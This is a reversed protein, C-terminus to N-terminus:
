SICLEDAALYIPKEKLDSDIDGLVNPNNEFFRHGKGNM